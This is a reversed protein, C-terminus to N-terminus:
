NKLQTSIISLQNEVDGLVAMENAINAASSKSSQIKANLEDEIARLSDRITSNIAVNLEENLQDCAMECQQRIAQRAQEEAAMRRQEYANREAAEAQLDEKSPGGSSLLKLVGIAAIVYPAAAAVVGLGTSVLGGLAQSGLISTSAAKSGFSALATAGQKAITSQATKTVMTELFKNKVYEKGLEVGLDMPSPYEQGPLKPLPPRGPYDCIGGKNSVDKFANYLDIAMDKVAKLEDINFTGRSTVNESEPIDPIDIGSIHEVNIADLKDVLNQLDGQLCDRIEEFESELHLSVKNILKEQETVFIKNVEDTDERKMWIMDPLVKSLKSTEIKIFDKMNHRLNTKYNRIEALLENLEAIVKDQSEDSLAKIIKRIEQEFNYVIGGLINFKDARKLEMNIYQELVPICSLEWLDNNSYELAYKADSANVTVIVYKNSIDSINNEIGVSKMNAVIKSKIAQLQVMGDDESLLGQKDNLIILVRKGASIIDKMRNYNQAYEYSGQTSMVFLVVDAQKLYEETVAEHQIPAGVGPTDAIQYGNWEYFDIKDTTPVDAVVAAERRVLANIISSKGANYIGYVMIQPQLNDLKDNMLTVITEWSSDVVANRGRYKSVINEAKFYENRIIEQYNILISPINNM